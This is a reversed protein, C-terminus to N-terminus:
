FYIFFYFCFGGVKSPSAQRLDKGGSLPVFDAETFSSKLCLFGLGLLLFLFTM